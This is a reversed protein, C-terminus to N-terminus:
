QCRQHSYIGPYASCQAQPPCAFRGNIGADLVPTTDSVHRSSDVLIYIPLRRSISSSPPPAPIKGGSPAPPTSPRPTAMKDALTVLSIANTDKVQNKLYWDYMERIADADKSSFKTNLISFTEQLAKEPTRTDLKFKAILNESDVRMKFIMEFIIQEKPTKQVYSLFIMSLWLITDKRYYSKADKALISSMWLPAYHLSIWEDSSVSAPLKFVRPMGMKIALEVLLFANSDRIQHKLYWDYIDRIADADTKALKTNLVLFINRLVTVPDRYDASFRKFIDNSNTRMSFLLEFVIQEKANKEAYAILAMSISLITDERYYRKLDSPNESATISMWLPACQLLIWEDATLTAPPM